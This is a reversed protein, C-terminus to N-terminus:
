ILWRKRKEIPASTWNPIQRETRRPNKCPFKLEIKKRSLCEMLLIKKYEEFKKKENEMRLVTEM